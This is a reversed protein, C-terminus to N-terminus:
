IYKRSKKTILNSVMSVVKIEANCKYVRINKLTIFKADYKGYNWDIRVLDSQFLLAHKIGGSLM